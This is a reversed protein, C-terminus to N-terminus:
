VSELFLSIESAVGDPDCHFAGHGFPSSLTRHLVEGGVRRMVAAMAEMEGAPYRWDTDYSLLLTKVRSARAFLEALDGEAELDFYDMAKTLYILSNPDLGGGANELLRNFFRQIEFEPEITIRRRGGELRRGFKREMMERSMWLMMGFMSTLGMGTKPEEGGYYDGGQFDPDAMITQRIVEWLALTHPSSQPTASIVVASEIFEPFRVMWELAQFGGMCGGIVSHLRGIELRDLLMRHARVSDGITAVPFRLGYPRGTDPDISGPGSSGHCGGLNNACVVFYRDTDLPKGPGIMADWWGPREDEEAHKGAAHCSHTLGHCVLITNQGEIDMRGYTEYGITFHNLVAGSEFVFASPFEMQRPITIM